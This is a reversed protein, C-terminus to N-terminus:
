AAERTAARHGLLRMFLGHFVGAIYCLFTIFFLEEVPLHPAVDVGIMAPSEGKSYVALEIAVLDWVLFFMFGIWVAVLAARPRHFLFLRWRRDVLGMCFMSVLLFGLYLVSM